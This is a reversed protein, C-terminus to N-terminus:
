VSAVARKALVGILHRKYDVELSADEVPEVEATAAAFIAASNGGGAAVTEAERLRQPKTGVAGAVIRHTDDRRVYALNAAPRDRFALREFRVSSNEELPPILVRTLVENPEIVTTFAWVFFDELPVHRRGTPSAIEATAGLAILLTAPDSHPEAFCLNGGLTGVNRVRVNALHQELEVFSPLLRAMDVDLELRRHTVGAGISWDGGGNLNLEGLEAVSKCDILHEPRALGRKMLLLLETGGMYIQASGAHQNLLAVAEDVTQPRHLNFRPLGM